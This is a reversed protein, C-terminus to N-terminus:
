LYKKTGLKTAKFTIGSFCPFLKRAGTSPNLYFLILFSPFCMTNKYVKASILSLHIEEFSIEKQTRKLISHSNGHYCVKLASVKQFFFCSKVTNSIELKQLILKWYQKMITCSCCNILGSILADKMYQLKNLHNRYKKKKTRAELSIFQIHNQTYWFTYGVILPTVVCLCCLICSHSFCIYLAICVCM